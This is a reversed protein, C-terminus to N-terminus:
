PAVKGVARAFRGGAYAAADRARSGAWSVLALGLGGTVLPVTASITDLTDASAGALAGVLWPALWAQGAAEGVKAALFGVTGAKLASEIPTDPARTPMLPPAM